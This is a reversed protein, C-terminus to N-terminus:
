RRRQAPAAATPKNLTLDTPNRLYREVIIPADAILSSEPEWSNHEATYGLWKVLFQAADVLGTRAAADVRSM